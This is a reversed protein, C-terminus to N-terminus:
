YPYKDVYWAAVITKCASIWDGNWDEMEYYSFGGEYQVVYSSLDVGMNALQAMTKARAAANSELNFSWYISLTAHAARYRNVEHHCQFKPELYLFNRM